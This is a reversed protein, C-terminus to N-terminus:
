QKYKKEGDRGGIQFGTLEEPKRSGPEQFQPMPSISPGTLPQFDRGGGTTTNSRLKGQRSFSGAAEWPLGKLRLIWGGSPPYLFLYHTESVWLSGAM